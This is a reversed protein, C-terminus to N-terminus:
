KTKKRAKPTDAIFPIPFPDHRELGDTSPDASNELAKEAIHSFPFTV